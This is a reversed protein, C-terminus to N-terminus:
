FSLYKVKTPNKTGKSDDEDNDSCDSSDSNSDSWLPPTDDEEELHQVEPFWSDAGM